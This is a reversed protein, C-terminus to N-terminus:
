QTLEKRNGSANMMRATLFRLPFMSQRAARKSQARVDRM